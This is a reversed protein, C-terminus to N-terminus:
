SHGVLLHIRGHKNHFMRCRKPLYFFSSLEWGYISWTEIYLINIYICFSTCRIFVSLIIGGAKNLFFRIDNQTLTQSFELRINKYFFFFRTGTKSQIFKVDFVPDRHSKEIPTVEVPQSGKRTDWYGLFRVSCSTRM